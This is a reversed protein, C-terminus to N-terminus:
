YADVVYEIDNILKLRAEHIIKWFSTRTIGLEECIDETKYNYISKMLFVDRHKVPLRNISDQLAYKLDSNENQCIIAKLDSKNKKRTM